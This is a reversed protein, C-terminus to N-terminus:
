AHYNGTLECLKVVSRLNRTTTLVKLKKEILVNSLKTKGYGNPCHLYAAKDIIILKEPPIVFRDLEEMSEKSVHGELFTVLIKTGDQELDFNKFPLNELIKIFESCTRVDVYVSFDYKKEITNEIEKKISAIDKEAHDFIVNGSQIYTQVNQYALNEYLTKLDAMKIKKQGAVNIGRLLSIYQTM